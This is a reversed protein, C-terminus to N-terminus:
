HRTTSRDALAREGGEVLRRVLRDLMRFERGSLTGFMTDNRAQIAPGAAALLRRGKASLSLLVGRRDVPSMRKEILGRRVLKGAEATVFAGTVGQHRAVGVVSVGDEGELQAIALFLGFQPGTVGLEAALRARLALLQEAMKMLNNILARFAGDSGGALLAPCTVTLPPARRPM